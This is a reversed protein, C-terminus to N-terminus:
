HSDGDHDMDQSSPAQAQSAQQGAASITVTDPTNARNPTPAAVPASPAPTAAVTQAASAAGSIATLM